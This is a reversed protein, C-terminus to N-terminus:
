NNKKLENEREMEDKLEGEDEREKVVVVKAPRLLQGNFIYGKQIVHAVCGQEVEESEVESVAEHVQPDFKKELAEVEELGARELTELMSNYIMRVGKHFRDDTDGSAELAREFDDLVPLLGKVLESGARKQHLEWERRMRKKYNEFEAALRLMRDEKNEAELSIEEIQKDKEELMENKRALLEIIKKRKLKRYDDKRSRFRDSTTEEEAPTEKQDVVEIHIKETEKLKDKKGKKGREEKGEKDLERDKGEEDMEEIKKKSKKKDEASSL